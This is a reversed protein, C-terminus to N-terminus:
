RNAGRLYREKLDRVKDLCIKLEEGTRLVSAKDMMVQQLERRIASIRETGDSNKMFREIMMVTAQDANSPLPAYDAAKCFEAM